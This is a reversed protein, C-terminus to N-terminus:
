TFLDDTITFKMPTQSIDAFPANTPVVRLELPLRILVRSPSAPTATAPIKSREPQV